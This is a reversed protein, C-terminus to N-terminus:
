RGEFHPPRREFFATVAESLDHSRLQGANWAAVYRQSLDVEARRLLQLVAKAGEVALPSNAAIEAAIARAGAVAAEADPFVHNVLGIEGARQADVDRGTYVLEAVQGMPLVLPLRALSGIDAVMAMRTERVSFIADAACVRLDCATVLDVGGGICYGHVAAIVPKPCDAVASIAAQLRLVDAHTARALEAPSPTSDGDTEPGTASGGIDALTNLDIGVSFHPGKAAVLVARVDRDRALRGVAEPLEAFFAVGMANRKEPRDLWLTAIHGEREISVVTYPPEHDESSDPQEPM